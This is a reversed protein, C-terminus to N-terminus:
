ARCNGNVTAFTVIKEKSAKPWMKLVHANDVQFLAHETRNDCAKENGSRHLGSGRQRRAQLDGDDRRHFSRERQESLLHEIARAELGFIAPGLDDRDRLGAFRLIGFIQRFASSALPTSAAMPKRHM